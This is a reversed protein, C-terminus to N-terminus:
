EVHILGGKGLDYDSGSVDIGIFQDVIGQQILERVTGIVRAKSTKSLVGMEDMVVLKLPTKESFAFGLGAVTALQERGSFVEFPVLKQSGEPFYGIEDDIWQIEIGAIPKTFLHARQVLPGVSRQLLERRESVLTKLKGQDAELKSVVAVLKERQASAEKEQGVHQDWRSQLARMNNLEIEKNGLAAKAAKGDAVIAERTRLNAITTEAATIAADFSNFVSNQMSRVPAHCHECQPVPTEKVAQDRSQVIGNLRNVAAEQASLERYLEQIRQLISGVEQSLEPIRGAYDEPPKTITEAAAQARAQLAQELNKRSFEGDRVDREAKLISEDLKSLTAQDEPSVCKALLWKIRDKKSLSFFDDLDLMVSPVEVNIEPTGTVSSGRLMYNVVNQKGNSFVVTVNMTKGSALADFVDAKKKPLRPDYGLLGLRLATLVATKGVGNEGHFITIPQLPHHFNRGNFGTASVTKIQM